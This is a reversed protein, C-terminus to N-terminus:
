DSGDVQDKLLVVPRDNIRSVEVPVGYTQSLQSATLTEAIPGGALIQGRRILVLQGATSIAVEPDHTTFIITVGQKELRRLVQLIRGKNSLDLHSTPEDLLLLRPQQAVTRALMAMQREGGSLELVSRHSLHALGLMDIAAEAARYDAPGPQQLLGLYPTRGLLVYELVSFHFPIYESQLGLSVLRSLEIRSYDTQRKGNLWVQGSKPKLLGLIIHLLTTKGAGNPGLIATVSGACIDLTLGTFVEATSGDYSFSLEKLSVLPPHSM